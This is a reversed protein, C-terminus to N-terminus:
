GAICGHSGLLCSVTVGLRGAERWIALPDEGPSRAGPALRLGTAGDDLWRRLEQVADARTHDVLVVSAFRDPFRRVCEHQYANDTQGMMQILVARHVGNRDMEHLLTEVPQFWVLSVHCHSDVIEM